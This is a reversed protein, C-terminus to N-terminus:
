IETEDLSELIDLCKKVDDKFTKIQGGELDYWENKIKRIHNRLHMMQEIRYLYKRPVEVYYKCWIEEPNGTQLDRIRKEITQETVGIKFLDGACLMYIFGCGYGPKKSINLLSTM